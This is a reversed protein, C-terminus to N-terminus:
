FVPSLNDFNLFEDIAYLSTFHVAVMCRLMESPLSKLLTWSYCYIRSSAKWHLFDVGNGNLVMSSTDRKMM